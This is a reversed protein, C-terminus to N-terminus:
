QIIITYIDTSAAGWMGLAGNVNGRVRTYTSFPGQNARGFELTNWFDFQAEDLNLWKISATDGLAYLGFTEDFNSGPPESKQLSFSFEQGDFLADDTVTALGAIFPGDNISTLYRYYDRQGLPDSISAMVQRWPGEQEGPADEVYITDLPVFPPMISEATLTVGQVDVQLKCRDGVEPNLQGTLDLYVCLDIEEQIATLGLQTEILSQLVTDLDRWCILTLEHWIDGGVSVQVVADDIISANIEEIGIESSFDLTKSLLVFAPNASPGSEIYGEVVYSATVEEGRPDFSSECACLLLGLGIILLSARRVM